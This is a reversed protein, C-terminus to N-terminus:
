QIQKSKSVTGQKLRNMEIAETQRNSVEVGSVM